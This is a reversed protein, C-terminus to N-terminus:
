FRATLTFGYNMSVPEGGAEFLAGNGTNWLGEPNIRAPMGAYLYGANRAIFVLNLQQLPTKKLLKDPVAYSIGVERLSVYSSSVVGKERPLAGTPHGLNFWYMAAPMPQDYPQGSRDNGNSDIYGAPYVGEPIIGDHRVRGAADTWEVGGHEADRGQLTEALTGQHIGYLYSWSFVQGGSRIDVVASVGFRKYTFTNVIGGTWRPPFKGVFPYDASRLYTGNAPNIVKKGNSPHEVPRGNEDKAQFYV